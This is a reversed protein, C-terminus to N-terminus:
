VPSNVEGGRKGERGPQGTRTKIEGKKRKEKRKRDEEGGALLQVQLACADGFSSDGGRGKGKQTLIEGDGGKEGRGKGGWKTTIEHPLFSPV